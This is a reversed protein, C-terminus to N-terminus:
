YRWPRPNSGRVPWNPFLPIRNKKRDVIRMTLELRKGRGKADFINEEKSSVKPAKQHFERENEEQGPVQIYGKIRFVSSSPGYDCSFLKILRFM